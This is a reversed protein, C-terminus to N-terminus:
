KLLWICLWVCEVVLKLLTLVGFFEIFSEPMRWEQVCAWGQLALYGLLVVFAVCALIGILVGIIYLSVIAGDQIDRWSM